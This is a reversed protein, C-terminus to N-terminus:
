IYELKMEEQLEYFEEENMPEEDGNQYVVELYEEYSKYIM